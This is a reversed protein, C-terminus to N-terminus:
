SPDIYKKCFAYGIGCYIPGFFPLANNLPDMFCEFFAKECVNAPLVEAQLGLSFGSLLLFSALIVAFNRNKKTM